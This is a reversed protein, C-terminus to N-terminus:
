LPTSGEPATRTRIRELHPYHRALPLNRLAELHAQAEDPLNEPMYVEVTVLLDGTPAGAAQPMGKGRLRFTRGHQTGPPIRMRLPRDLAAVTLQGGLAAEVVTIPLTLALHSSERRFYPHAGIELTVVLQGRRTRDRSEHGEQALTITAGSAAGLPCTLRVSAAELCIGDGDCNQCPHAILRGRGYCTPCKKRLGFLGQTMRREGAGQCAKCLQPSSGPQSGTGQCRKCRGRRSVEIDRAAGTVADEFRFTARLPIDLSMEVDKQAKAKGFVDGFIGEFMEGVDQAFNHGQTWNADSAGTRDYHRRKAPDSLIAYARSVERFKGEAVHDGPNKDPHYALALRHYARKITTPSADRSVNLTVYPCNM